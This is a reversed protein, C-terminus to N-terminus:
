HRGRGEPTLPWPAAAPDQRWVRQDADEVFFLTGAAVAFAGGGYEHVRSRVNFPPVTVDEVLGGNRMRVVVNRGQDAPRGELWYVDEGDLAVGGIRVAGAAALAATIPSPWAGFPAIEPM